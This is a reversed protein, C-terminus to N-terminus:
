GILTSFRAIEKETLVRNYLRVEKIKGSFYDMEGYGIKFPASNSIDYDKADFVSSAVTVQRQRVAGAPQQEQSSRSAEMRSGSRLRLLCM